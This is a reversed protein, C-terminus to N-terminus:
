RATAPEEFPIFLVGDAISSPSILPLGGFAYRIYQPSDIESRQASPQSDFDIFTDPYGSVFLNHNLTGRESYYDEKDIEWRSSNPTNAAVHGSYTLQMISYTTEEPYKQNIAEIVSGQVPIAHINHAWIFTQGQLDFWEEKLWRINEASQYDTYSHELNHIQFHSHAYLSKAVQLWFSAFDRFERPSKPDYTPVTELAKQNSLAQILNSLQATLKKHDNSTYKRNSYWPCMMIPAISKITSYNSTDLNNAVLYSELEDFMISCGPDSNIRSDYGIIKLSTGTIPQSNVYNFLQAVEQSFRHGYMYNADPGTAADMLDQKGTLFNQWAALGDYLGAEFAVFDLDGEEYLAKVMRSKYSYAKSGQHTAEGVGVFDYDKTVEIFHTLDAKGYEFDTSALPAHQLTLEEQESGCGMLFILTLLSINKM